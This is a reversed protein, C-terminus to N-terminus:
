QESLAKIADGAEPDGHSSSRQYWAIADSRNPSTGLGKEYLYGVKYEAEARGQQAAMLYWKMANPYSQAVGLGQEYM